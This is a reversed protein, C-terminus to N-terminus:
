PAPPRDKTPDDAPRAPASPPTDRDLTDKPRAADGPKQHETSINKNEIM